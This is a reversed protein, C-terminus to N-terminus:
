FIELGLSYTSGKLFHIIFYLTYHYVVNLASLIHIKFGELKRNIYHKALTLHFHVKM